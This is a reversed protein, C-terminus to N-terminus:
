QSYFSPQENDSKSEGEPTAMTEPIPSVQSSLSVATPAPTAEVAERAMRQSAIINSIIDEAPEAEPPTEAPKVVVARPPGISSMPQVPKAKRAVNIAEGVLIYLQRIDDVDRKSIRLGPSHTTALEYMEIRKICENLTPIVKDCLIEGPSPNKSGFRVILEPSPFDFRFLLKWAPSQSFVLLLAVLFGVYCDTSYSMRAVVPLLGCAICAILLFLYPTARHSLPGYRIYMMVIAICMTSFATQISFMLHNCMLSGDLLAQLSFGTVPEDFCYPRTIVTSPVPVITSLSFFSRMAVLIGTLQVVKSIFRAPDTSGVCLALVLPFWGMAVSEPISESIYFKSTKDMVFDSLAGTNTSGTGTRASGVTKWAYLNLVYGHYRSYYSTCIDTVIGTVLFLLSFRFRWMSCYWPLQRLKSAPLSYAGNSNSETRVQDTGQFFVLTLQVMSLAIALRYLGGTAGNVDSHKQLFSGYLKLMELETSAPTFNCLEFSLEIIRGICLDLFTSVVALDVLLVLISVMMLGHHLSGWFQDRNSHGFTPRNTLFSCPPTQTAISIVVALLQLGLAVFGFIKSLRGMQHFSKFDGFYQKSVSEDGPEVFMNYVEDEAIPGKTLDEFTVGSPEFLRSQERVTTEPIDCEPYTVRIGSNGVSIGAAHYIQGDKLTIDRPDESHFQDVFLGTATLALSFISFAVSFKFMMRSKQAPSYKGFHRRIESVFGNFSVKM